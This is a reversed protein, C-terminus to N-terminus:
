HGNRKLVKANVRDVTLIEKKLLTLLEGNNEAQESHNWPFIKWNTDNYFKFENLRYIIRRELDKCDENTCEHQWIENVNFNIEPNVLCELMSEKQYPVTELVDLNLHQIDLSDHRAM